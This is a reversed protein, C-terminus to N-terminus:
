RMEHMKKCFYVVRMRALSEFYVVKKEIIAYKNSNVM